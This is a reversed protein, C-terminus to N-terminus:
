YIEILLYLRIIRILAYIWDFVSRWDTMVLGKFGLTGRLLDTIVYKSQSAWEGNVLNYATMVSGAGADISAKFAPIYVEMM